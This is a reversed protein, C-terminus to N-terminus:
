SHLSGWNAFPAPKVHPSNYLIAITERDALEIGHPDSTYPVLQGSGDTVLVTLPHSASATNSLVQQSTLRKGWLDFLDGLTYKTNGSLAAVVNPESSPVYVAYRCSKSSVIGIGAPVATRQGNVYLEIEALQYHANKPPQGCTLGDIAQGRAAQQVGASAGFAGFGFHAVLLVIVLLVLLAAAIVTGAQLRRQRIAQTRQRKREAQQRRQAQLRAERRQDRKTSQGDPGTM